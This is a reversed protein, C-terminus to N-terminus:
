LSRELLFLFLFILIYQILLENNLRNDVLKQGQTLLPATIDPVIQLLYSPSKGLEGTGKYIGTEAKGKLFHATFLDVSGYAITCLKRKQTQKILFYLWEWSIEMGSNRNQQGLVPIGQKHSQLFSYTYINIYMCVHM